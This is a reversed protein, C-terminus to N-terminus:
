QLHAGVHSCGLSFCLFRQLRTPGITKYRFNRQFDACLEACVVTVTQTVTQTVGAKSRVAADLPHWLEWFTFNRSECLFSFFLFFFFFTIYYYLILSSMIRIEDQVRHCPAALALQERFPIGLVLPSM